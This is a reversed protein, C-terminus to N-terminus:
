GLWLRKLYDLGQQCLYFKHESTLVSISQLKPQTSYMYYENTIYNNVYKKTRCQVFTVIVVYIDLAVITNTLKGPSNKKKNRSSM